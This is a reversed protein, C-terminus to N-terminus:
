ALLLGGVRGGVVVLLLLIADDQELTAGQPEMVADQGELLYQKVMVVKASRIVAGSLRGLRKM